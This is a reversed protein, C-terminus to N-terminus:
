FSHGTQTYQRLSPLQRRVRETRYKLQNSYCKMQRIQTFDHIRWPAPLGATRPACATKSGSSSCPPFMVTTTRPSGAVPSVVRRERGGNTGDQVAGRDVECASASAQATHPSIRVYPESPAPRAALGARSGSGTLLGEETIPSRPDLAGLQCRSPPQDDPLPWEETRPRRTHGGCTPTLRPGPADIETLAHDGISRARGTVASPEDIDGSGRTGAPRKRRLPVRSRASAASRRNQPRQNLPLGPRRGSAPRPADPGAPGPRSARAELHPGTIM